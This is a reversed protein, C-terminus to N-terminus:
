QHEALSSRVFLILGVCAKASTLSIFALEVSPEILTL